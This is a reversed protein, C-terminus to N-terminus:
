ESTLKEVKLATGETNNYAGTVTITMMMDDGTESQPVSANGYITFRYGYDEVGLDFSFTQVSGDFLASYDVAPDRYVTFTATVNRQGSSFGAAYNHSLTNRPARPSDVSLRLNSYQLATNGNATINLVESGEYEYAELPVNTTTFTGALSSSEVQETGVLGFNFQVAGAAEASLEVSNISCGKNVEFRNASLQSIYSFTSFDDSAKLVDNADFKGSLGCELLLDVVDASIANMEISGSVSQVGRRSGNANLGPRITDSIIEGGSKVPLSSGAKRPLEFRTGTTPLTGAVTEKIISTKVSSSPIYAM